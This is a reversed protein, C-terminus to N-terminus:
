CLETLITILICAASVLSSLEIGLLAKTNDFDHWGFSYGVFGKELHTSPIYRGPDHFQSVDLKCRWSPIFVQQL